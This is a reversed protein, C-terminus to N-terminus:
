GALFRRVEARKESDSITLGANSGDASACCRAKMVNPTPSGGIALGGFLGLLTPGGMDSDIAPPANWAIWPLRAFGSLSALRSKMATFLKQQRAARVFDSENPHCDNHRTRALALAQKGDLHNVGKHLRLTYGGNRSGGAIKSLVCVRSDFDVGGMADILQPFNGFNVLVVHNVPIGLFRKVTRIALAAGGLFYAANIKHTGHGPIETVTDRPISLRASHGGGTRILLMVDSHSPGSTTAGAERTGRTRQDSGLVLVNTASTLPLGGGDLAARAAADVGRTNVSASVLFLVLSLALWGVVALAALALARRWTLPGRLGIRRRRGRGRVRGPPDAPRLEELPSPAAGGRGRGLSLGTRYRTYEPPDEGGHAGGEGDM